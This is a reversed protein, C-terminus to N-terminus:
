VSGSQVISHVNVLIEYGYMKFQTPNPDKIKCTAFVKKNFNRGKFILDLLHILCQTNVYVLEFGQKKYCNHWKVAKWSDHWCYIEIWFLIKSRFKIILVLLKRLKVPRSGHVVSWHKSPHAGFLLEDFQLVSINEAPTIPFCKYSLQSIIENLRYRISQMNLNYPISFKWWYKVLYKMQFLSECKIKFKSSRFSIM